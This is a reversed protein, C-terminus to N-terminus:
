VDKKGKQSQLTSIYQSFYDIREGENLEVDLSHNTAHSGVFIFSLEKFPSGTHYYEVLLHIGKNYVDGLEDIALIREYPISQLENIWVRNEEPVETLWVQLYKQNHYASNQTSTLGFLTCEHGIPWADDYEILFDWRRTERDYYGPYKHTIFAIHDVPEHGYYKWYRWSPNQLFHEIDQIYPYELNNPDRILVTKRDYSLHGERFDGLKKVLQRKTLLKSRLQTMISRHKIHLSIGFYAFLLHDNKPLFLMDELEAKGWLHFEEIGFSLVTERFKRRSAVSFDCAAVLIYGYPTKEQQGLDQSVIEGIKTPGIRRKRKCQIIWVREISVTDVVRDEENENYELIPEIDDVREVARIDMGQDSGLRGTAELSVWQRFDYVIQRVLDEFRHPELDEFHLPNITRTATAM